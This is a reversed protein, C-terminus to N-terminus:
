AAEAESGRVRLFDAILQEVRTNLEDLQLLTEDQRAELEELLSLAQVEPELDDSM